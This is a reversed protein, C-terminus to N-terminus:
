LFRRVISLVFRLPLPEFRGAVQKLTKRIPLHQPCHSECKGCEVCLRPSYPKKSIAATSTMFQQMGTTFNQAYSTNYAAFCGPINIGKPCPMCYNCGTCHMKYANNFIGIVEAYVALEADTLSRANDASHLNDEMQAASNMGSLVCTVENQDWLWRLGWAAPSLSSDANAFRRVAEKPLGTALRGGLLPEMIMVPLGKAAAAKLGEKGAQYNENSYNYQIQCFDWAYADLIKLFEGLSGHFSFGIQRIKGTRKKEAIWQEIGWKRFTEWQASDTIMHMLYYDIYGTQLRELEKDFFRDFYEPDKCIILPLKTAIFVSERKKHKALITGLTEESNPYMYATDFYNVGGDIAKLIMRETEAMNRSFRMCGLGLISLKNGSIKDERYQM